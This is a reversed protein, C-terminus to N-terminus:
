SNEKTIELYEAQWFQADVREALLVEDTISAVDEKIAQQGVALAISKAVAHVNKLEPLLSADKDAKVPSHQALANCAAALMGDTVRTAQSALIGLGIGPFVFANNCQAIVINKGAYEFPEFPSGTAVLVKGNTWEYLDKPTAEALSTPNSLPMVLPYECHQAMTKIISESFAGTVGSCGILITPKVQKVVEELTIKGEDLNWGDVESRQCAYQAQFDVLDEMDDILLGNRDVLWFHKLAEEKSLGAHVIANLIQDSVGCGATGAGLVVIRQDEIKQGTALLGSLLTACATAGTGQIDDNFTCMNDKFRNLNRRANDRGFDEWHLYINPFKKTIAAVVKDIFVDYADGTVREHRWGVYQPDNLLQENNTGCDLQIPLCRDPNVGGCATYVVLKGICIDIGGVGWDGIGLVGEGDTVIILDIDNPDYDALVADLNDQNEFSFFLGRGSSFHRSYREVADGIVPTYVIPMMEELHQMITYYFLTESKEKINMLFLHKGINNDIESFQQYTRVEQEVLTTVHFPLKGHLDFAEREAISFATGKNLQPTRLLECGTLPTQYSVVKGQETRLQKFAKM